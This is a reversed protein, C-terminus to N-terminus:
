ITYEGRVITGPKAEYPEYEVRIQKGKVYLVDINGMISIKLVKEFKEDDNLKYINYYNTPPSIMDYTTCSIIESTGDKDIDVVYIKDSDIEIDTEVDDIIVVNNKIELKSKRDKNIIIDQGSTAEHKTFEIKEYEEEVITKDDSKNNEKNENSDTKQEYKKDDQKLSNNKNIALGGCIAICAVVLIVVIIGIIKSNM